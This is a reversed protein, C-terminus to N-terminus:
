LKALEALVESRKDEPIESVSPAYRNVLAKVAKKIEASEACRMTIAKQFDPLSVPNEAPEPKAEAPPAAEVPATAEVTPVAAEGAVAQVDLPPNMNVELPIAKVGIDDLLRDLKAIIAELRVRDADELAVRVTFENM